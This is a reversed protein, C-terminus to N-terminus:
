CRGSFYCRFAALHKFFNLGFKVYSFSHKEFGTGLNRVCVDPLSGMSFMQLTFATKLIFCHLHNSLCETVNLTSFDLNKCSASSAPLLRQCGLPALPSGQGTDSDEPPGCYAATKRKKGFGTPLM